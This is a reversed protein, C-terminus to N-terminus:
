KRETISELVANRKHNFQEQLLLWLKV